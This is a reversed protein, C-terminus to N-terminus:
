EYNLKLLCEEAVKEANSKFNTSIGEEWDVMTASWIQYTVMNAIYFLTRDQESFQAFENHIRNRVKRAKDLFRYSSDELIGNKHLYDIKRKFNWKEIKQFAKVDVEDSYKENSGADLSIFITKGKFVGENKMVMQTVQSEVVSWDGLPKSLWDRITPEILTKYKQFCSGCLNLEAVKRLDEITKM